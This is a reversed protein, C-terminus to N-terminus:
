KESKIWWTNFLFQFLTKSDEESM